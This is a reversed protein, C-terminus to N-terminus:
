PEDEGVAVDVNREAEPEIEFVPESELPEDEEIVGEDGLFDALAPDEEELHIDELSM